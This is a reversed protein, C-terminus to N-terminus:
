EPHRSLQCVAMIEKLNRAGLADGEHEIAVRRVEDLSTLGQIVKFVGDEALSIMRQTSRALERIGSATLGRRLAQRVSENIDLLEHLATMGKYGQYECVECEGAKWFSFQNYDNASINMARLEEQAPSYGVKCNECLKRVLRQAVLLLPVPTTLFHHAQLSQLRHLASTTDSANLAALVKKGSLAAQDIMESIEQNKIDSVMVLDSDYDIMAQILDAYTDKGGPGFCNQVVGPIPYDVADELTLISHNLSNLHSIAAYQLTSKGSRQPSAALLIGGAGNLLREIRKQNYPSFSMDEIGLLRPPIYNIHLVLNEGWVGSFYSVSTEVKQRGISTSIREQWYDERKIRFPTKICDILPPGLRLPLDTRHRLVGDVRFRLRLFNELSELHLATAGAEVASRILFNAIPAAQEKTPKAQNSLKLLNEDLDQAKNHDSIPNPNPKTKYLANITTLIESTTAIAPTIKCKFRDLLIQLLESNLPDSMVVVMLNNYRHVPLCVHERLFHEEIGKLLEPDILEPSPLIRPIDLQMSLANTLQIESIIGSQVLLTGFRNASFKQQELVHNLQDQNILGLNILLEGIQIRKHHRSLFRQLDQKTILKLDVCIQGLPKYHGPQGNPNIMGTQKQAVLAKQLADMTLLGERVMLDGLKLPINKLPPVRQNSQDKV